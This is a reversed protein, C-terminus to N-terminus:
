FELLDAKNLDEALFWLQSTVSGSSEADPVTTTQGETPILQYVEFTIVSSSFLGIRSLPILRGDELYYLGTQESSIVVRGQRFGIQISLGDPGPTLSDLGYKDTETFLKLPDHQQPTEGTDRSSWSLKGRDDISAINNSPKGEGTLAYFGYSLSEIIGEASVNLHFSTLEIEANRMDMKALVTNWTDVLSLEELKNSALVVESRNCGPIALNIIVLLCLGIMTIIKHKIM